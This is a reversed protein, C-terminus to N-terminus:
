IFWLKNGQVIKRQTGETEDSSICFFDAEKVVSCKNKILKLVSKFTRFSPTDDIKEEIQNLLQYIKVM